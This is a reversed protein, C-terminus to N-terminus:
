ESDIGLVVTSVVLHRFVTGDGRTCVVASVEAAMVVIGGLLM